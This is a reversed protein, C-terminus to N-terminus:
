IKLRNETQLEVLGIEKGLVDSAVVQTNFPYNSVIDYLEENPLTNDIISALSM